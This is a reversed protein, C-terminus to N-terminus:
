QKGARIKVEVEIGNTATGSSPANLEYIIPVFPLGSLQYPDNGGFIGCDTGGVGAGIAPSPPSQKLRFRNDFSFAGKTPYGVFISDQPINVINTNDLGTENYVFINNQNVNSTSRPSGNHLFVNNKYLCDCASTSQRYFIINNQIITNAKASASISVSSGVDGGIINNNIVVNSSNDGINLTYFVGSYDSFGFFNGNIIINSTNTLNMRWSIFNRQIFVNTISDLDIENDIRLGTIVSGSAGKKLFIDGVQASGTFTSIELEPNEAVNYGPGIITLKKRITAGGYNTGSPYVYIIDGDSAGDVADQLTTFDASVANLNNLNWINQAFITTTFFSFLLFFLPSINKMELPPNYNFPM